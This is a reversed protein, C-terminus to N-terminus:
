NMEQSQHSQGREEVSLSGWAGAASYLGENRLDSAENVWTELHHGICEKWGVRGRRIVRSTGRLQQLRLLLETAEGQLLTELLM